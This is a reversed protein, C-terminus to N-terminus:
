KSFDFNKPYEQSYNVSKSLNKMNAQEDESFKKRGNVHKVTKKEVQKQKQNTIFRELGPERKKGFQRPKKDNYTKEVPNGITDIFVSKAAINNVQVAFEFM